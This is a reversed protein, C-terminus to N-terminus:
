EGAAAIMAARDILPGTTPNQFNSGHELLNAPQGRVFNINRPDGAWNPHTDVNNIHHGVVTQPPLRGNEQIYAIESPTWDVTGAGTKQVLEVLAPDFALTPLVRM